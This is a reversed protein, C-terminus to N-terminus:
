NVFQTNAPFASAAIERKANARDRLVTIKRELTDARESRGIGWQILWYAAEAVLYEPDIGVEAADSEPFAPRVLGWLQISRGPLYGDWHPGVVVTRDPLLEWADPPIDTRYGNDGLVTVGYLGQISSPLTIYPTGQVYATEVTVVSPVVYSKDLTAYAMRLAAEYEDLLWGQGRLNFLDAKTGVPISAPAPPVFTLAAQERDNGVTRFEHGVVLPESSEWILGQTDRLLATDAQSLALHRTDILTDDGSADTTTVRVYDSAERALWERAERKTVM